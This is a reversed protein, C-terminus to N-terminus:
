KRATGSSRSQGGARSAPRPRSPTTSTLSGRWAYRQEGSPSRNRDNSRGVEPSGRDCTRLRAVCSRMCSNPSSCRCERAKGTEGNRWWLLIRRCFAARDSRGTRSGGARRTRDGTCASRATQARGECRARDARSLRTMGSPAVSPGATARGGAAARAAHAAGGRRAHKDGSRRVVAPARSKVSTGPTGVGGAGGRAKRDTRCARRRQESAM